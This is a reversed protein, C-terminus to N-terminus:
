PTLHLIKKANEEFIRVKDPGPIDMEEVSNIIRGIRPGSSEDLVHRNTIPVSFFDAM